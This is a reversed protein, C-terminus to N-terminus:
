LAFVEFRCWLWFQCFCWFNRRKLCCIFFILTSCQGCFLQCDLSIKSGRQEFTQRLRLRVFWWLWVHMPEWSSPLMKLIDMKGKLSKLKLANCRRDFSIAILKQSVVNCQAVMVFKKLNSFTLLHIQCFKRESMSSLNQFEVHLSEQRRRRRRCRPSKRNRWNRLPLFCVRQLQDFTKFLKVVFIFRGGADFLRFKLLILLRNM